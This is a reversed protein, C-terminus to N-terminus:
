DNWLHHHTVRYLTPPVILKNQSIKFMIAGADSTQYQTVGVLHYRNVVSKNPFHFRNRYGVGYLVFTPKVANIFPFSSSTKSGHHPAVLITSHLETQYQEILKEEVPKQIDGTLLISEKGNSVKLVCSSNNDNFYDGQMPWLVEFTVDDWVWREGAYCFAAHSQFRQPVITLIQNVSLSKIIAFSGGIHDSDGHSIMITNIRWINNVQLYPIIVADGANFNESFKPGTDYIMTHNKTQIIASLGQGVDLLTFWIDGSQPVNKPSFFLPLFFIICLERCYFGKSALLLLIGISASILTIISLNAPHWLSITQQSLFTLIAWLIHLNRLVLWLCLYALQHSFMFFFLSLVCLPMIVFAFWPVAIINAMLGVSSTEHYIFMTVPILGIMIVYQVRGWEWWIGRNSLRGQMGYIIVAVAVFSMWFGAMVVNLPNLILVIILAYFYTQWPLLHRKILVVFLLISLMIMARQTQIPFGALFSYCLASFVSFIAAIQKAPILLTLHYSQRWLFSIMVFIFGAVLGIHLGAIAILHNTGTARLVQWQPQTIYQRSGVLLAPLFGVLSDHSFHATVATQITQRLKTIPYSYKTASLQYNDPTNVVYGTAAINEEFLQAEYDFGGPNMFGHPRKLRVTLRWTEGAQLYTQTEYWTLKLNLKRKQQNFDDTKFNFSVNNQDIMPISTVTGKISIDKGEVSKDIRHDLHLTSFLMVWFLGCSFGVFLLLLRNKLRFFILLSLITCLGLLILNPINSFWIISSCGFLFSIIFLTM